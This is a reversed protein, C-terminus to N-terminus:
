RSASSDSPFLSTDVSSGQDSLQLGCWTTLLSGCRHDRAHGAQRGAHVKKKRRASGAQRQLQLASVTASFAQRVLSPAGAGERSRRAFLLALNARAGTANADAHPRADCECGLSFFLIWRPLDSAIRHTCCSLTTVRTVSRYDPCRPNSTAVDASGALPGWGLCLLPWLHRIRRAQECISEGENGKGEGCGSHQVRLVGSGREPM